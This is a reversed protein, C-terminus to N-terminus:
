LSRDETSEWAGVLSALPSRPDDCPPPNSLNVGELSGFLKEAAANAHQVQGSSDSIVMMLSSQNLDNLMVERM